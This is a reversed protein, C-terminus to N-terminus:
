WPRQRVPLELRGLPECEVIVRDGIDISGIGAPTGTAYVDGPMLPMVGSATAILDPIDVILDTLCGDQRLEGNVWLRVRLQSPDPIDDATVIWPGSPAFTWFSKRMPREERQTETMRMTVDILLTYGFVYDLAEDRSVGRAERGIVVAIEAEHDFRRSPRSPLEIPDSAGSLSGWSKIFFGLERATQSPDAHVKGIEARHDQYNLPAALFNRPSPSPPRLRVADLPIAAGNSARRREISSRLEAFHEIFSNVRYPAAFEPGGDVLDTLDHIGDDELTGIRYDDFVVIRM